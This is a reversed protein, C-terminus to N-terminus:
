EHLIRGAFNTPLCAMHDDNARGRAVKYRELFAGAGMVVRREYESASYNNALLLRFGMEGSLALNRIDAIGQKGDVSVGWLHGPYHTHLAEAMNKAIVYDNASLMDPTATLATM